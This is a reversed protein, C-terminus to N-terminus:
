SFILLPKFLGSGLHYIFFLSLVLLSLLLAGNAASAPFILMLMQSAGRAAFMLGIIVMLGVFIFLYILYLRNTLSRDRSDYSFLSLWYRLETVEQRCRLWGLASISQDKKLAPM